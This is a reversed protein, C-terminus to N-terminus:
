QVLFAITLHSAMRKGTPWTRIGSASHCSAKQTYHAPPCAFHSNVPMGTTYNHNAASCIPWAVIRLPANLKIWEMFEPQVSKKKPQVRTESGRTQQLVLYTDRLPPSHPTTAAPAGAAMAQQPLPPRHPRACRWADADRPHRFSDINKKARNSRM